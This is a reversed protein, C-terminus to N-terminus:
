CGCLIMVGWLAILLGDPEAWRIGDDKVSSPRSGCRTGVGWFDLDGNVDASDNAATLERDSGGEVSTSCDQEGTVWGTDSSEVKFLTPSTLMVLGSTTFSFEDSLTCISPM